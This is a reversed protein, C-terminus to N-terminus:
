NYETPNIHNITLEVYPPTSIIELVTFRKPHNQWEFRTVHVRRSTLIYWCCTIEVFSLANLIVNM